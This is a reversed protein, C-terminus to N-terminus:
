KAELRLVAARVDTLMVEVRAMRDALAVRDREVSAELVGVRRELADHSRLLGEIKAKATAWTIAGGVLLGGASSLFPWIQQLDQLTM